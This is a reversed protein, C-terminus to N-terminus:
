IYSYLIYYYIRMNCVSLCPIYIKKLKWENSFVEAQQKLKIIETTVRACLYMYM